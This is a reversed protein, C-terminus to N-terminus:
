RLYDLVLLLLALILCFIKWGRATQPSRYLLLVDSILTLLSFIAGIWSVARGAPSGVVIIACICSFALFLGTLVGAVPSPRHAVPIPAPGPVPGPGPPIPAPGPIPGPQPGQKPLVPESVPIPIPRFVAPRSGAFGPESESRRAGGLIQELSGPMQDTRISQELAYLCKGIDANKNQLKALIRYSNSGAATFNLYDTENFVLRETDNAGCNEWVSSSAAIAILSLYLVVASFRDMQPGFTRIRETRPHQFHVHGLDIPKLRLQSMAPVYMGDYDILKLTRTRGDDIVLINTIDLDGHAVQAEELQKVMALFARAIEAVLASDQYHEELFFGLTQSNLVRPVKLFPVVRDEVRVGHEVWTQELLFPMTTCNNNVFAAIARYRERLDPPATETFCRVFWDSVQYVCVYKGAGNFRIPGFADATLKGQKIAPDTFATARDLLAMDYAKATPWNLLAM